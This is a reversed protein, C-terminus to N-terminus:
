LLACYTGGGWEEGGKWAKGGDLRFLGLSVLACRCVEWV